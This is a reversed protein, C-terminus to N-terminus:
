HIASAAYSIFAIVGIIIIIYLVIIVITSIGWLKFFSKLKEFAVTAQLSNNFLVGQKINSGFQYLYFSFFFCYAALLVDIVRVFGVMYGIASGMETMYPSPYNQLGSMMSGTFIIGLVIFGTFIFGMIALFNAWKGAATLYYKAEQTIILEPSPVPAPIPETTETTDM